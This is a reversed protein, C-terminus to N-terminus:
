RPRFFYDANSVDYPGSELIGPSDASSESFPSAPPTLLPSSSLPLGSGLSVLSYPPITKPKAERSPTTQWKKRQRIVLGVVLALVLLAVIAAPLIRSLAVAVDVAPKGSDTPFVLITSWNWTVVVNYDDLVEPSGMTELDPEPPETWPTGTIERSWESWTGYDFEESARVQVRHPIKQLADYIEYSTVESPLDVESYSQLVEARYRLQFRLHYIKSGWSSPYCWTVLLKRPAKEVPTVLVNEPPDPKVLSSPSYYKPDSTATGAANAVCMTVRLSTDENFHSQAIRCSFKQSKSYYRCQQETQNGGMLGKGVWLKAKTCSSLQRSPKWECLIDKTFSRRFCTFHPTEPPEEVQLRVSRLVRGGAQCSYLGSDNYYVSRLLLHSGDVVLRGSPSIINQGKLGWHVTTTNELEGELCPLTINTGPPCIVTDPPVAPQQCQLGPQVVGATALILSTILSTGALRM